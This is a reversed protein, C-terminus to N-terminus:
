IFLLHLITVFRYEQNSRDTKVPSCHALTQSLGFHYDLPADLPNLYADVAAREAPSPSPTLLAIGILGRQTPHM